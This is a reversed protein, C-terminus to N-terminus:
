KSDPKPDSQSFNWHRRISAILDCKLTGIAIFLLMRLPVLAVEEAFILPTSSFRSFSHDIKRIITFLGAIAAQSQFDRIDGTRL